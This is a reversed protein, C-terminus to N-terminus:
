AIAPLAACRHRDRRIGEDLRGAIRIERGSSTAQLPPAEVGVSAATGVIVGTDAIVVVATRDEVEVIGMVGDTVGVRVAVAV